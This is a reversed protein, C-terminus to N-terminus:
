QPQGLFQKRDQRVQFVSPFSPMTQSNLQLSSFVPGSFIWSIKLCSIITLPIFCLFLLCSVRLNLCKFCDHIYPLLIFLRYVPGPFIYAWFLGSFIKFRWVLIKTHFNERYLALRWLNPSIAIKKLHKIQLLIVLYVFSYPFVVWDFSCFLYGSVSGLSACVEAEISLSNFVAKSISLLIFPFCLPSFSIFFFHYTLLHSYWCM